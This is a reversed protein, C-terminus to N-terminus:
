LDIKTKTICGSYVCKVNIFYVGNQKAKKKGLIKDEQQPQWHATIIVIAKPSYNKVFSGFWDYFQGPKEQNELLNPGGHSIFFVPAKTSM